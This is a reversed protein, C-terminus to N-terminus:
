RYFPGTQPQGPTPTSLLCGCNVHPGPCAAVIPGRRTAPRKEAVVTVYAGAASTGGDLIWRIEYGRRALNNLTGELLAHSIATAVTWQPDPLEGRKTVGQLVTDAGASM